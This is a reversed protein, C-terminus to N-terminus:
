QTYHVLLAGCIKCKRPKNTVYTYCANCVPCITKKSLKTVEAYKIKDVPIDKKGSYHYVRVSSGQLKWKGSITSGDKLYFRLYKVKKYINLLDKIM